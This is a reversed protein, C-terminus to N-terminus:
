LTVKAIADDLAQEEATRTRPDTNVWIEQVWSAANRLEEVLDALRILDHAMARKTYEGSQTGDLVRRARSRVDLVPQAAHSDQAGTGSSKLGRRGAEPAFGAPRETKDAVVM